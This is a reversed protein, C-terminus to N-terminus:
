SSVRSFTLTSSLGRDRLGRLVFTSGLISWAAFVLSTIFYGYVSSMKPFPDPPINWSWVALTTAAEFIAALVILQVVRGKFFLPIFAWVLYYPYLTRLPILWAFLGLVVVDVPDLKGARTWVVGMAIAFLATTAAVWVANVLLSSFAVRLAPLVGNFLNMLTFSTMGNEAGYSLNYGVIVNLYGPLWLPLVLGAASIMLSPALRPLTQLLGQKRVLWVAILPLSLIPQLKFIMALALLSTGVLMRQKVFALLSGALLLYGFIDGHFWYYNTSSISPLLLFIAPPLLSQLGSKGKARLAVFILVAILLDAALGALRVNRAVLSIPDQLATGWTTLQVIGGLVIFLFPPYPAAWAETSYPNQGRLLMLTKLLYASVLEPGGDTRSLLLWKQVAAIGLIIAFLLPAYKKIAQPESVSGFRSVIGSLIPFM